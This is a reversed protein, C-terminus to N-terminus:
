NYIAFRQYPYRVKTGAEGPRPLNPNQLRFQKMVSDSRKDASMIVEAEDANINRHLAGLVYTLESDGFPIDAAYGRSILLSKVGDFWENYSYFKAWTHRNGEVNVAKGPQLELPYLGSLVRKLHAGSLEKDTKRNRYPASPQLWLMESNEQLTSSGALRHFLTCLVDFLISGKM